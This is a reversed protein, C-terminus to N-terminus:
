SKSSQICENLGFRFNLAPVVLASPLPFMNKKKCDGVKESDPRNWPPSLTHIKFQVHTVKNGANKERRRKENKKNKHSSSQCTTPSRLIRRSRIGGRNGCLHFRAYIMVERGQKRIENIKRKTSAAKQYAEAWASRVWLSWCDRISFFALFTM